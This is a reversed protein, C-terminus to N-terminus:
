NCCLLMQMNLPVKALVTSKLPYNVSFLTIVATKDNGHSPRATSSYLEKLIIPMESWTCSGWWLGRVLFFRVFEPFELKNTSKNSCLM